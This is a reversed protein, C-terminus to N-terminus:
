QAAALMAWNTWTTDRVAASFFNRDYIGQAYDGPASGLDGIM